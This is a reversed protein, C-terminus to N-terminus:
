PELKAREVLAGALDLSSIVGIPQQSMPEAVLLHAAEHESMLQAARILDEDPGIVPADTAAITGAVLHMEGSALALMLDLDSIIGCVVEPDHGADPGLGAVVVCHIPGSAMRGAIEALTAQPPVEIVGHHMVDRVTPRRETTPHPLARFSTSTVTERWRPQTQVAADDADVAGPADTVYV